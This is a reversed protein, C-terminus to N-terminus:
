AMGKEAGLVLRAILGTVARTFRAFCENTAKGRPKSELLYICTIAWMPM